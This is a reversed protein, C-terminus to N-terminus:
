VPDWSLKEALKNLNPIKMDMYNALQEVTIKKAYYSNYSLKIYRMGKYTIITNYYNGGTIKSKDQNDSDKKNSRFNDNYLCLDNLMNDFFENNIVNNSLLKRLIVERSVSYLTAWKSINENNIEHEKIVTTFDHDPVLVTGAFKNCTSEINHSGYQGLETDNLLNIDSTSSILHYLEHFLTFIQRSFSLSNNVCIIPFIDDFICFGSISDNKFSKKFVYIGINFFAERWGEFCKSLNKFKKQEDISIGILNRIQDALIKHSSFNFEFNKFYRPSPNVEDHLEHLNLQMIRGWDLLNMTEHSFISHDSPLTRFSKIYGFHNPIVPLFFAVIPKNYFKRIKELESYTPNETGEEWNHLKDPGFHDCAEQLSIGSNQRIQILIKNNIYIIDTM